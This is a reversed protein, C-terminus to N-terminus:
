RGPAHWLPVVDEIVSADYQTGMQDASARQTAVIRSGHDLQLSGGWGTWDASWRGGRTDPNKLIVSLSGYQMLLYGGQHVLRDLTTIYASYVLMETDAVVSCGRPVGLNHLRRLIEGADAEAAQATDSRNAATWIPLRRPAWQADWEAKSWVHPTDGGIYGACVHWHPPNKPPYAADYMWRM